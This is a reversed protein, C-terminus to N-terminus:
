CRRPPCDKSAPSSPASGTSTAPECSSRCGGDRRQRSRLVRHRSEWDDWLDVVQEDDIFLRGKGGAILSIAFEGDEPAM